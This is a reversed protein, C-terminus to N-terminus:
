LSAGDPAAPLSAFRVAPRCAQPNAFPILHSSFKRSQAGGAFGATVLSDYLYRIPTMDSFGFRM